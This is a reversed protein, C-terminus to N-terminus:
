PGVAFPGRMLVTPTEFSGWLCAIGIEGATATAWATATGAAQLSVNALVKVAPPHQFDPARAYAVLNAWPMGAPDFLIAGAPGVSPASLEIKLLGAPPKTPELAPECSSPGASVRVVGVPAFANARPAGIRLSSLFFAEFRAQDAATAVTVAGGSRDEVLRGGDLGAGEIVRLTLRRTTVLTADRVAAAALPDWIFYGGGVMFPNRAWIEYVLDAPAAAHDAELRHFLDPTLPVSNTADLGVFTLDFGADLVLRVATPDAHANWEATPEGSGAVEPMVNGPVGVAGLMSVVRVRGPLGPDLALAGALNTLPGLTLITLRRGAGAEAAALDVLLQESSRSDPLFAPQVLQLGNGMDAGARWADPFPQAAGMPATRGCAVPLPADIVMTVVSRAVLLGGPCHAEGTGTVAIGLVDVAPDRLLSAIAVIDDPAMDTDIVLRLRAAPSPAVTAAGSPGTTPAPSGAPSCAGLLMATLAVAVVNRARPVM